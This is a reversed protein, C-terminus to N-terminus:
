RSEALWHWAENLDTFVSARVNNDNALAAFVHALAVRAPPVVVAMRPIRATTQFLATAVKVMDSPSSDIELELSDYLMNYGPHQEFMDAVDTILQLTNTTSGTGAGKIVITRSDTVVSVTYSLAGRM